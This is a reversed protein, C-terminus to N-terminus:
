VFFFFIVFLAFSFLPINRIEIFNSLLYFITQYYGGQPSIREVMFGNKEALLRLGYKTFRFYDNPIMHPEYIYNTTLFMKGNKKLIRNVEKFFHHPNELHELVQTSLVYDFKNKKFPFKKNINAIINISKNKNQAIDLSLYDLRKFYNKFICNGAGLDLLFKNKKDIEKAIKRVFQFGRSNINRTSFYFIEFLKNLM